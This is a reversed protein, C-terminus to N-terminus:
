IRSMLELVAAKIYHASIEYKDKLGTYSGSEGFTDKVGVFRMPVPYNQALLESIASGLGGAIQHEEVTVVKSTKQVSSLITKEDLPKLTSCNIVECSINEQTLLEHAAVLTEYVIPGTGILTVDKGTAVLQAKGIKFPTQETTFVSTKERTLRIYVPGIHEAAALTAKRAELSDAPSLVIMNPLVRMLAIDELAQATAGENTATLGIHTGVIKVNANSYCIAIRIQSWSHGPSFVAFSTAFPIKGGMALGAAIGIMNQEAIGVEFFRDPFRAGFLEARTSDALNASLVVVNENKEGASILGNAFGDRTAILELQPTFLKPSLKLTESLEM